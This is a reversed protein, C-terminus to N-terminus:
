VCQITTSLCEFTLCTSNGRKRQALPARIQELVCVCMCQSSLSLFLSQSENLMSWKVSTVSSGLDVSSKLRTGANLDVWCLRNDFGGSALLNPQALNIGIESIMNHHIGEVNATHHPTHTYTSLAPPPPSLSLSRSLSLSISLSRGSLKLTKKADDSIEYVKM